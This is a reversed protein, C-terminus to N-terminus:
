SKNMRMLAFRLLSILLGIVLSLILIGFIAELAGIMSFPSAVKLLFLTVLLFFPIIFDLFKFAM